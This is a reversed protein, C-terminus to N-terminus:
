QNDNWKIMGCQVSGWDIPYDTSSSKKPRGGKLGKMGKIYGRITPETRAAIFVCPFHASPSAILQAMQSPLVKPYQCWVLRALERYVAKPKGKITVKSHGKNVAKPQGGSPKQWVQYLGAPIEYESDKLARLLAGPRFASENNKEAIKALKSKAEKNLLWSHVRHIAEDGNPDFVYSQQDPDREMMLLATERLTWTAKKLWRRYLKTIEESM